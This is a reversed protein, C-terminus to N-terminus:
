PSNNKVCKERVQMKERTKERVNECPTGCSTFCINRGDLPCGKHSPNINAWGGCLAGVVRKSLDTYWNELKMTRVVIKLHATPLGGGRGGGAAASRPHTINDALAKELHFLAFFMCRGYDFLDFCM